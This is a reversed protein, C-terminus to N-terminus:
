SRDGFLSLLHLFLNIIDLYLNLSAFVYDDISFKQEHGGWEGLILQTDYVIFFSFVLIGCVDYLMMGWKINIGCAALIPLTFGFAILVFLAVTVYPGLGTFDQTTSCAYITMMVFIAVTMGAALLVSQWTYMASVFGVMVSMAGTIVLLFIYNTPFARLHQACCTMSCMTMIMAVLSAYFIWQHGQVWIPGQMCIPAAIVVTLLLQASLIGYVKRVFGLRVEGSASKVWQSGNAPPQLPVTELDAM